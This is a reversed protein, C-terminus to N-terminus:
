VYEGGGPFLGNRKLINNIHKAHPNIYGVDGHSVAHDTLKQIRRLEETLLVSLITLETQTVQITMTNGTM